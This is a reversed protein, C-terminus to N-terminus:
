NRRILNLELGEVDSSEIFQVVYLVRVSSIDVFPDIVLDTLLGSINISKERVVGIPISPPVITSFSSTVIRDGPQVDSTTPINRMLLDTGDWTIVGHVNSKQVKGTVKLSSNKLTRVLSFNETTEYVVGILGKEDIVPMGASISDIKGVNIIFDGRVQSPIQSIVSAAILSHNLENKISLLAKLERNELGYERLLNVELMLESNIKKLREIEDSDIFISAINNVASSFLAFSGFGYTRVTKIAASDNFSLITLSTVLLGVLLLYERISFFLQTLRKFM